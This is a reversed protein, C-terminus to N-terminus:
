SACFATMWSRSPFAERGCIGDRGRRVMLRRASCLIAAIM